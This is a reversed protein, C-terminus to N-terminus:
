QTLDSTLHSFFFLKQRNENIFIRKKYSLIIIRLEPADPFIIMKLHINYLVKTSLKQEDIYVYIIYIIYLVEEWM